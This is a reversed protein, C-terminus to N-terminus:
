VSAHEHQPRKAPSTSFPRHEVLEFRDRGVRRYQIGRWDVTRVFYAAISAATYTAVTLGGLAFAKLPLRPVTQGTERLVPRLAMELAITCGAMGAAFGFLSGGSTGIVAIDGQVIGAVLCGLAGLLGASMSISAVLIWNGAPSYCIANLMQRRLFTFCRDLSITEQNAMTARPVLKLKLNCRTLIRPVVCDDFLSESWRSALGGKELVDRRYAVSGGFPIQSATMEPISGVNWLYRVLTGAETSAPTFWRMGTSAGVDPDNLPHMLDSLWESYANVDSDVVVVAFDDEELSEVVQLLASNKAGCTSRAVSLYEVEVQEVLKLQTAWEVVQVAPDDPSDIVIRLLYNPYDQNLLSEICRPLFPDLGRVPLVVIARPADPRPTVRVQRSSSKVERVFRSTWIVSRILLGLLVLGCVISLPILM